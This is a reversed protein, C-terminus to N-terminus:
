DDSDEEQEDDDPDEEQEDDDDSDELVEVEQDDDSDELRRGRERHNEMQKSVAEILSEDIEFGKEVLWELVYLFSNTAAITPADNSPKYGNGLLWNLVDLDGSKVACDFAKDPFKMIKSLCQIINLHGKELAEEFCNKHLEYGKALFYELVRLHGNEVAKLSAKSDYKCGNELAWKVTKLYGQGAATTISTNEWSLGNGLIWKLMELQGVDLAKQISEANLKAGKELLYKMVEIHGGIAADIATSPSIKLMKINELQKLVDLHGGQAAGETLSGACVDVTKLCYDIISQHGGRGTDFSFGAMEEANNGNDDLWEILDLHGGYAAGNYVMSMYYQDREAISELADLHGHKGVKFHMEDNIDGSEPFFDNKKIWELVDVHGGAAAETCLPIEKDLPNYGNLGKLLSLHGGRAFGLAATQYISPHKEGLEM